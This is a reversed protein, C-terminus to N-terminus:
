YFPYRLASFISVQGTHRTRKTTMLYQAPKSLRRGERGAEMEEEREGEREGMKGGERRGEKGREM